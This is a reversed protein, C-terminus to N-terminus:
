LVLAIFMCHQEFFRCSRDSLIAACIFGACNLKSIQSRNYRSAGFRFAKGCWCHFSNNSLKGLHATQNQCFNHDDSGCARLWDIQGPAHCVKNLKIELLRWIKANKRKLSAWQSGSIQTCAWNSQNPAFWDPSWVFKLPIIWQYCLLTLLWILSVQFTSDASLKLSRRYCFLIFMHIRQSALVTFDTM